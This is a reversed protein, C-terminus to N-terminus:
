SQASDSTAQVVSRVLDGLRQKLLGQLITKESYPQSAITSVFRIWQDENLRRELLDMFDSVFVVLHNRSTEKSCEVRCFDGLLDESRLTEPAVNMIRALERLLEEAMARDKTRIGSKDLILNIDMLPRNRCRVRVQEEAQRVSSFLRRNSFHAVATSAGIVFLIGLLYPWISM